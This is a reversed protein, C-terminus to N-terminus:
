WPVLNSTSWTASVTFSNMQSISAIHPMSLCWIAGSVTKKECSVYVGALPPEACASTLANLSVKPALVSEITMALVLPNVPCGIPTPISSAM